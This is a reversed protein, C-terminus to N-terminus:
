RCPEALPALARRLAGTAAVGACALLGAAPGPQLDLARADAHLGVLSAEVLAAMPEDSGHGTAVTAVADYGALLGDLASHRPGALVLVVPLPGAVSAARVAERAAEQPDAALHARALRGATSSQLGHATLSGALRRAGVSATLAPGRRMADAPWVCVLASSVRHRHALLLGLASGAALADRPGCLLGVALPLTTAASRAARTHAPSVFLGGIRDLVDSM